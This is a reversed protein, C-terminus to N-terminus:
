NRLLEDQDAANVFVLEATHPGFRVLAAPKPLLALLEDDNLRRIPNGTRATLIINDTRVSSVIDSPTLPKTEVWAAPPLPQTRVLKYPEAPM